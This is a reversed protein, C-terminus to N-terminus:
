IRGENVLFELINALRNIALSKSDASPYEVSKKIIKLEDLLERRIVRNRAEQLSCRGDLREAQIKETRNHILVKGDTIILM